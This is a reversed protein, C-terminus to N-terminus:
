SSGTALYHSDVDELLLVGEPLEEEPAWDDHLPPLSRQGYTKVKQM